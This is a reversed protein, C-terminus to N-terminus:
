PKSLCPGAELAQSLRDKYLRLPRNFDKGLQDLITAFVIPRYVEMVRAPASLAGGWIALRHGKADPQLTGYALGVSATTSYVPESWGAAFYRGGSFWSSFGMLNTEQRNTLKLAWKAHAPDDAVRFGERCLQRRLEAELKRYEISPADPTEIYIPDAKAPHVFPDAETFLHAKHGACGVLGAVLLVSLCRLRKANM